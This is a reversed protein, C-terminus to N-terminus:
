IFSSVNVYLIHNTTKKNDITLSLPNDSSKFQINWLEVFCLCNNTDSNDFEIIVNKEQKKITFDHYFFDKAKRFKKIKFDDKNFIFKIKRHTCKCNFIEHNEDDIADLLMEKQDNSFIDGYMFKKDLTDDVFNLLDSYFDDSYDINDRLPFINFTIEKFNDIHSSLFYTEDLRKNKRSKDLRDKYMNFHVNMYYIYENLLQNLINPYGIIYCLYSKKLFDHASELKKNLNIDLSNLYM